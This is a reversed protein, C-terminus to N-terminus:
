WGKKKKLIKNPFPFLAKHIGQFPTSDTNWSQVERGINDQSYILDIEFKTIWKQNKFEFEVQENIIHLFIISNQANVNYGAFKSYISILELLTKTMEKPNEAHVIM